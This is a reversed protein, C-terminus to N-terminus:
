HRTHRLLKRFDFLFSLHKSLLYNCILASIFSTTCCALVVIFSSNANFRFFVIAFVNPFAGCLFYMGITHRGIYDLIKSHPVIKCFQIVLFSSLGIMFIGLINWHGRTITVYSIDRNRLLIYLSLISLASLLWIRKKLFKDIISEYRWYYGGMVLFTFAVMGSKYYYPLFSSGFFMVDHNYLVKTFSLLLVSIALMFWLKCIRPILAILAIVEAVILASTFWYCGGLITQDILDRYNISGGRIILKPFFLIAAFLASPIWTKYLM